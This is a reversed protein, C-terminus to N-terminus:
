HRGFRRERKSFDELAADLEDDGFDPWMVESFYLEAYASEYLLFNSLRKEGSSRIILEPNRFAAPLFELALQTALLNDDVKDPTIEGNAVRECISKVAAVIDQRGGYSIAVTLILQPPATSKTAAEARYIFFNSLHSLLFM